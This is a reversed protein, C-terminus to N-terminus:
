AGGYPYKGATSRGGIVLAGTPEVNARALLDRAVEASLRRTNGLRSVIIVDDVDDVLTLADSVEGLPSTDVVVYDVANLMGSILGRMRYRDSGYLDTVESLDLLWMSPQGPVQRLPDDTPKGGQELGPPAEGVPADGTRVGLAKGLSPKRIDADVAIVLAGSEALEVAFNAAATTKGDGRSASTIMIARRRQGSQELQVQITRFAERVLPDTELTGPQPRHRARPLRPIRALIPLPFIRLLEDESSIRDPVVIEILLATATALVLGALLALGLVLWGPLGIASRPPVAAQSISLSPDNGEIIADLDSLTGELAARSADQVARTRELREQVRARLKVALPRLVDRRSELAATAFANALDAAQQASSGTATIEIINTQGQPEVSTAGEVRHRTFGDGMEKAAREAADHSDVLEAATQITRTPDGTDKVVPLSLLATDENPIPTVLLEADATYTDERIQLWAAASGITGLLVLLAILWHSRLARVYPGIASESPRPSLAPLASPFEARSSRPELAM